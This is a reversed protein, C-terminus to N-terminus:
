AFLRRLGGGRKPMTLGSVADAVVLATSRDWSKMVSDRDRGVCLEIASM